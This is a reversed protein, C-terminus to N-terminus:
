TRHVECLWKGECFIAEMWDGSKPSWAIEGNGVLASYSFDVTTNNDGFVVTIRQGQTGGTFTTITTPATNTTKYLLIGNGVNPTTHGDVFNCLNNQGLNSLAPTNNVNWLARGVNNAAAANGRADNGVLANDCSRAGSELVGYRQTKISQTDTTLNGLLDNFAAQTNNNANNIQVGACYTPHAARGNSTAVNSAVLVYNSDELLVGSQGNNRTINGILGTEACGQSLYIGCWEM